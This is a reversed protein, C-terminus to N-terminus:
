VCFLRKPMKPNEQAIYEFISKVSNNARKKWILRIEKEM